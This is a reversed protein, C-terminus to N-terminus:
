ILLFLKNLNLIGSIFHVFLTIEDSITPRCMLEGVIAASVPIYLFRQDLEKNKASLNTNEIPNFTVATPVLQIM